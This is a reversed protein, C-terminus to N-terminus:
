YVLRDELWQPQRLSARKMLEVVRPDDYRWARAGYGELDVSLSNETDDPFWVDHSLMIQYSGEYELSQTMLTNWRQAAADLPTRGALYETVVRNADSLTREALYHLILLRGPWAMLAGFVLSAVVFAAIRARAASM